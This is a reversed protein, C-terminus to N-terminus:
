RHHRDVPAAIAAPAALALAAIAALAALALAAIVALATHDVPASLRHSCSAAEIEHKWLKLPQDHDIREM